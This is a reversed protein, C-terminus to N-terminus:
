KEDTETKQIEHPIMELGIDMHIGLMERQKRRHKRRSNSLVSRTVMWIYTGFSCRDPNWPSKGHNRVILSAAIQQKLDDPDLGEHVAHRFSPHSGVLASIESWRQGVPVGLAPSSDSKM